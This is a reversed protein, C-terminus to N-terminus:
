IQLDSKSLFFVDLIGHPLAASDYAPIDLSKVLYM